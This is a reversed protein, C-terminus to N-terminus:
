RSGTANGSHQPELLASAHAGRPRVAKPVPALCPFRPRSPREHHRERLRAAALLLLYVMRIRRAFVIQSPRSMRKPDAPLAGAHSSRPWVTTHAIAKRTCGRVVLGLEGRELEEPMPDAVEV